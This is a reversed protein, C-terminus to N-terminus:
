AAAMIATPESANGFTKQQPDCDAHDHAAFHWLAPRAHKEGREYRGLKEHRQQERDIDHRTEAGVTSEQGQRQASESSNSERRAQWLAVLSLLNLRSFVYAARRWQAAPRRETCRQNERCRGTSNRDIELRQRM